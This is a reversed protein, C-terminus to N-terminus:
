RKSKTLVHGLGLNTALQWVYVRSFRVGFTKEILLRLRGNTWMDSEFGHARPSDQLAAAIWAAGDSGLASARGGGGLQRLADIGGLELLKRYRRVTPKSLRLEVIVEAESAGALLMKAAELRRTVTPREESGKRM